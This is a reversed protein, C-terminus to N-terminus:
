GTEENINAQIVKGAGWFMLSMSAFQGLQSIGYGLGMICQTKKISNVAPMLLEEYKKVIQEENGFSQVM